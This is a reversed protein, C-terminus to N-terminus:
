GQRRPRAWALDGHEVCQKSICSGFPSSSFLDEQPGKLVLLTPDTTMEDYRPRRAVATKGKEEAGVRKEEDMSQTTEDGKSETPSGGRGDHAGYRSDAHKKQRESGKEDPTRCVPEVRSVRLVVGVLVLSCNIWEVVPALPTTVAVSGRGAVPAKGEVSKEQVSEDVAVRSHSRPKTVPSPAPVLLEGPRVVIGVTSRVFM